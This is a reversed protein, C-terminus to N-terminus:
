LAPVDVSAPDTCPKDTLLMTLATKYAGSKDISVVELTAKRFFRLAATVDRKAILLVDIIQSDTCGLPM